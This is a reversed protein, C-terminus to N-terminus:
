SFFEWGLINGRLIGGGGGGLRKKNQKKLDRSEWCCM